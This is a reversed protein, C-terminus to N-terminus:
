RDAEVGVAETSEGTGDDDDGFLRNAILTAAVSVVVSALVLGLIRSIGIGADARNGAHTREDEFGTVRRDGEIDRREDSERGADAVVGRTGFQPADLRIELVTIKDLM